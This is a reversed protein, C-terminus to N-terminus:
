PRFPARFGEQGFILGERSMTQMSACDTLSYGKDPSARYLRLGSLFTAPKGSHRPHPIKSSHKLPAAPAIV